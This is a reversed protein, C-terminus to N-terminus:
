PFQQKESLEGTSAEKRDHWEKAWLGLQRGRSNVDRPQVKHDEFRKKM